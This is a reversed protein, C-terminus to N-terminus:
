NTDKTTGLIVRMAEDQMRHLKLLNTQTMTTPGIGYLTLSVTCWVNICYFSNANNLIRQLWM